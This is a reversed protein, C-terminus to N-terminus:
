ASAAALETDAYIEAMPIDLNFTSLHLTEDLSKLITADDIWEGDEGRSWMEIRFETQYVLCFHMLNPFKRYQQAKYGRDNWITSSSLVEFVVTAGIVSTKRDDRPGRYLYADPFVGFRDNIPSRLLVDRYEMCGRKRLPRLAYGLNGAILSHIQTGGAMAVPYGEHLEWKEGDGWTQMWEIFEDITMQQDLRQATSM